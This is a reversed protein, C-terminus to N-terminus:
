KVSMIKTLHTLPMTRTILGKIVLERKLLKKIVALGTEDFYYPLGFKISINALEMLTMSDTAIQIMPKGYKGDHVILSGKNFELTMEVGADTATLWINGKLKNFDKVKGPNNTINTKIMDGLMGAMANEEAGPALKINVDGTGEPSM